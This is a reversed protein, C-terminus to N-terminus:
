GAGGAPRQPPRRRSVATPVAPSGGPSRRRWRGRRCRGPGGPCGTFYEAILDNSKQSFIGGGDVPSGAGLMFKRKSLAESGGQQMGNLNIWFPPRREAVSQRLLADPIVM